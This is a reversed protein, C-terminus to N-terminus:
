TESPWKTQMRCGGQPSDLVAITGSHKEVIRQVIALGLGVGSGGDTARVFPDFVSQRDEQPIGPGDDDVNIILGDAMQEASVHVTQASFRAANSILNTFVREFGAIDGVVSLAKLKIDTTFEVNPFRLAHKQFISEITSQVHIESPSQTSDNDARVYTLLEGVIKDLDDAASELARLKDERQDENVTRILDTAFHIRALPTRLEHSVAQLLQEQSRVMSETRGAMHNFTRVLSSAAIGRGAEIRASLDGAAITEAAREVGQFQKVVPRLLLAIALATLTLITGMWVLVETSTPGAFRPLPGFLLVPEKGQRLRTVVFTGHGFGHDKGRCLVVDFDWDPNVTNLSVPFDYQLKIQELLEEEIGNAVGYLYKDRAIRVGGFYADRVVQTNMPEFRKGYLWSQTLWAAILILLIGLYFRLFLRTM